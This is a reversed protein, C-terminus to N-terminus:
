QGMFSRASQEIIPMLAASQGPAIAYSLIWLDLSSAVLYQHGEVEILSGDGGVISFRYSIRAAPQDGIRLDAQSGTVTFGLQKYQATITNVIEQLNDGPRADLPLRRINLNDVFAPNAHQTNFAWLAVGELATASGVIAALDPNRAAFESFIQELNDQRVDLVEWTKPLWLSLHPTEHKTWGEPTPTALTPTATPPAPTARPCAASLLALLTATAIRGILSHLKV